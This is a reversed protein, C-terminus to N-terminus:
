RADLPLVAGALHGRALADRAQEIGAREEELDAQQDGVVVVVPLRRGGAHDGADALDFAPGGHHHGVVGGHLGPAHHGSVM